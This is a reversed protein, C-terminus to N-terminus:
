GRETSIARPALPYYLCATNCAHMRCASKILMCSVFIWYTYQKESKCMTTYKQKDLRKVTPSFVM